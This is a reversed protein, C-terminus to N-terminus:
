AGNKKAKSILEGKKCGCSKTNETALDGHSVIVEKGCICSCRYKTSGNLTGLREVVTLYTFTEGTLDVIRSCGCSRTDGSTLHGTTVVKTNGCDCQCEWKTSGAEM